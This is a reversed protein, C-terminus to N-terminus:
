EVLYVEVLVEGAGGNTQVTYSGPELTELIAADRSDASLSFAGVAAFVAALAPDNGWGANSRLQVQGKFLTLNPTTLVNTVGFTALTPGVARILVRQPTHGRLVFGSTLTQTGSLTMRTSINVLPPPKPLALSLGPIVKVGAGVTGNALVGGASVFTVSTSSGSVLSLDNFIIPGTTSVLVYDGPSALRLQGVVSWSTATYTGPKSLTLVGTSNVVVPDTTAYGPDLAVSETSVNLAHVSLVTALFLAAFKM